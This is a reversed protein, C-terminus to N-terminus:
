RDLAVEQQCHAAYAVTMGKQCRETDMASVYFVFDAGTIGQGPGDGITRCQKGQADCVRCSQLASSFCTVWRGIRVCSAILLPCPIATPRFNIHWGHPLRFPVPVELHHEPVQVEGCMTAAECANMCYPHPDNPVLFM